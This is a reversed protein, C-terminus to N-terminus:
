GMRTDNFVQALRNETGLYKEHGFLFANEHFKSNVPVLNGFSVVFRYEM